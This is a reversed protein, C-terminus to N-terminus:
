SSIRCSSINSSPSAPLSSMASRMRTLGDGSKRPYWDFLYDRLDHEHIARLPVGSGALYEVLGRARSAHKSVTAPSLNEHELLHRTFREVLELERDLFGASPDAVTWAGDLAAEPEAGPGEARGPTLPPVPLDGDGEGYHVAPTWWLAVGTEADDDQTRRRAGFLDLIRMM